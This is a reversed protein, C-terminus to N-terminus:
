EDLANMILKFCGDHSNSTVITSLELVSSNILQTIVKSNSILEQGLVTVGPKFSLVLNVSYTFYLLCIECIAVSLHLIL